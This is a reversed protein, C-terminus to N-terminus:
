ILNMLKRELMVGREMCQSGFAHKTLLLLLQLRQRRKKGVRLRQSLLCHIDDLVYIAYVDDMAATVEVAFLNVNQNCVSQVFEVGRYIFCTKIHMVQYYCTMTLAHFQTLKLLNHLTSFSDHLHVISNGLIQEVSKHARPCTSILNSVLIAEELRYTWFVYRFWQRLHLSFPNMCHSWNLYHWCVTLSKPFHESFYVFCYLVHM